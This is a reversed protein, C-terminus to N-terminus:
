FKGALAVQFAGREDVVVYGGLFLDHVVEGLEGSDFGAVQVGVEARFMQGGQLGGIGLQPEQLVTPHNKHPM